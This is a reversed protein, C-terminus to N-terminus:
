ILYIKRVHLDTEASTVAKAVLILVSKRNNGRIYKSLCCFSFYSLRLYLSFTM